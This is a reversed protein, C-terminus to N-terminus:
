ELALQFSHLDPESFPEKSCVAFCCDSREFVSFFLGSKRYGVGNVDSLDVDTLKDSIGEGSQKFFAEKLCWLRTLLRDPDEANKILEQERPTCILHVLSEADTITDQVDVGIPYKSIGCFVAKACHSINFHIGPHGPLYPKGNSDTEWYKESYIDTGYERRIGYSFLLYSLLCLIRDKEQYYREAKLLREKPVYRSLGEPLSLPIDDSYYLM